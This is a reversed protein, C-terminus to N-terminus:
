LEFRHEPHEADYGQKPHRPLPHEMALNPFRLDANERVQVYLREYFTHAELNPQYGLTFSPASEPNFVTSLTSIASTSGLSAARQYYFLARPYNERATDYFGATEILAEPNDQAGACKFYAEAMQDDQKDSPLSFAFYNGLAVQAQPSGLQAAKFMYSSAMRDDRLMGKGREAAVAWNYYGLPVKLEVMREYLDLMKQANKEVGPRGPWGTRYLRALNHMAKWHDRAIAQEYLEVVRPWDRLEKELGRAEQFWLEAERDLPPNHDREYACTFQPYAM